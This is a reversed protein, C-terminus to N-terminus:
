LNLRRRDDSRIITSNFDDKIKNFCVLFLNVPDKGNYVEPVVCSIIATEEDPSGIFDVQEVFLKTDCYLFCEPANVTVYTNPRIVKGNLTWSSVQIQVKLARLEDSLAQRAVKDISVNTKESKTQYVVKPRFGSSFENLINLGGVKANLINGNNIAANRYNFRQVVYPNDLIVSTQDGGQAKAIIHSHMAQGDFQLKISVGPMNGAFRYIPATDAAKTLVLNGANDHSLVIDFDMAIDALYDSVSEGENPVDLQALVENAESPVPQFPNLSLGFQNCAMQALTFLSQGNAQTTPFAAAWECDQLVQTRSYGSCTTLKKVASSDFSPSLLVGTLLLEGKKHQKTPDSVITVENYAGPLLIKKHVPNSPDFYMDFSFSSGVSAHMLSVALNSWKDFRNGNIKLVM